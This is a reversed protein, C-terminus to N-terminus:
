ETGYSFRQIITDLVKRTDMVDARSVYSDEKNNLHIVNRYERVKDMLSQENTAILKEAAAKIILPNFDKVKSSGIRDFLLGEFVAGCMMMFSLWAGAEFCKEAEEYYYALRQIRTNSSVAPFLLQYDRIGHYHLILIPAHYGFIQQRYSHWLVKDKEIGFGHDMLLRTESVGDLDPPVILEAYEIAYAPLVPVLYEAAQVNMEFQNPTSLCKELIFKQSKM